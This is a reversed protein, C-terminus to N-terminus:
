VTPDPAPGTSERIVLSTAIELHRSHPEGWEAMHLVMEVARRGMDALPQRIATLPPTASAALPTDDYGIVSLDTPVVLGAERAAQLVGMAQADSGAVIATLGNRPSDFWERAALRAAEADFAVYKVLAEGPDRGAQDWASLVGNLRAMASLSKSPGSLVGIRTHGLDILHEAATRGGMWNTAGISTVEPDSTDLPDIVVVPLRAGIVKAYDEPTVGATLAIAGTRGAALLRHNLRTGKAEQHSGGRHTREVVLDVDLTEAALMAGRLVEMAYASSIVDALFVISKREDQNHRKPTSYNLEAIAVEVRQRTRLAVDPRGNAVKSATALSVGARAAVEALTARPARASDTM